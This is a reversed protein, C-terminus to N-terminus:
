QLAGSCATFLSVYLKLGEDSNNIVFAPHSPRRSQTSPDVCVRVGTWREFRRHQVRGVFPETMKEWQWERWFTECCRGVWMFCSFIVIYSSIVVYSFIVNFVDGEPFWSKNLKYPDINLLCVWPHYKMPFLTTNILCGRKGKNVPMIKQNTFKHTLKARKGPMCRKKGLSQTDNTKWALSPHM